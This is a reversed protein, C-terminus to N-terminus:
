QCAMYNCWIGGGGRFFCFFEINNFFSFVQLGFPFGKMEVGIFKVVLLLFFNFLFWSFSATCLGYRIFIYAILWLSLPYVVHWGFNKQASKIFCRNPWDVGHRRHRNISLTKPLQLVMIWILTISSNWWSPGGNRSFTM